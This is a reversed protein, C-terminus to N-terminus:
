PINPGYELPPNFANDLLQYVEAPPPVEEQSHWDAVVFAQLNLDINVERLWENLSADYDDVYDEQYTVPQGESRRTLFGIAKQGNIEAKYMPVYNAGNM